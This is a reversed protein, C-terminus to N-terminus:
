SCPDITGGTVVMKCQGFTVLEDLVVLRFSLRTGLVMLFM